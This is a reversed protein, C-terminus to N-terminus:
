SHADSSTEYSKTHQNEFEELIDNGEIVARDFAQKPDMEGKLAREMYDIIKERILTYNGLRIGKTNETIKDNMVELIAVEAAPNKDYFGKKKTLYYAAETIPLYGTQQHWYAQVEPLSLYALFHAIGRYTEEDFGKMVWFSSGGITLRHPSGAIDLWYPISGVGIPFSTKKSLMSSRNAGQLLIASKGEIFLKEPQEVFRGTYAYVGSKQWEVLKELHRIQYPGNFILRANLGAIGNQHTAFPLNHWACIYELHYAAPWASVFGNYGANVLQLSMKEIEEWTKPPCEPDLGAEKFAEKNYYLVGTSANWPLSYMKKDPTSYFDRVADIYVDADFKKYYRHMLEDVPYFIEEKLMMSQTAVEYVQLIHPPNGEEAAEVGKNYVETYNGKNELRIKYSGSQYNFDEVIEAFKDYLFGEFAHWIVIEKASLNLSFFLAFISYILVRAM